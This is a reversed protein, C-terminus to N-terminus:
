HTDAWTRGVKSAGALPCRFGLSEGAQRIAATAVSAVEDACEKRCDIQWEDHVNAVFEYDVGPKHGAAQLNEDLFVLAQKMAAAGASQLLTNLAAHSSRVHLLRGDLGTLTKTAKAKAQVADALKKLAPTKKLFEAKLKLGHAKGKGFISGMKEPGAGYLFAYIGTKGFDRGKSTRGGLTYLKKPELGFAKTNLSHVDTEDESKGHVVAEGYKGSDWRAMYHALCRLELGEADAGVLVGLSQGFLARCEKGYLTGVRPVQGMNPHSHTMRGTVAGNTIVSGHIRGKKAVKLWAQPGEALQGIRKDLLFYEALLKAEPYDLGALVEDDIAPDGGETFKVPQWGYRRTLFRAVHPRSSPNFDKWEIPTLPAGGVYGLTKNHRKPTFLKGAWFSGPITAKLEREVEARRGTLTGYLDVAAAEDFAIGFRVQRQVIWQVKHELDVARQSYSSPDLHDLLKRTVIVDQIGYAEMDPNWESWKLAKREKEDTIRTDGTYEGKMVGLRYGWAELSHSKFLKGPLTGRVKLKADIDTLDAHKLRSFVLTDFVRTEDVNFWPYVKQIAPIDFAIVNHGAVSTSCSCDKLFRLGEEITDETDSRRFVRVVDAEPHHVTLLHIRTLEPLLGDTEIDFVVM